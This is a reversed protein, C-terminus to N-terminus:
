PARHKRLQKLVVELDKPLPAEVRMRESGVGTPFELAACHLALRHLLPKEAEADKSRFGPKIESLLLEPRAGYLEDCLVPFGIHELHVRIQHTRGTVPFVRLLTYGRFREEIRWRTLADKGKREAIVMRLAHRRDKGIALDIEGSETSPTGRVLTLYEKHITRDNFAACLLRKADRDRALLLVGSTHKDLRHVVRTVQGAKSKQLAPELVDLVTERERRREPVVPLGAPKNVAIVHDNQFLVEVRLKKAFRKKGQELDPPWSVSVVSGRKLPLQIPSASGDILVQGRRILERVLGPQGIRVARSLFQYPSLNKHEPGVVFNQTRPM